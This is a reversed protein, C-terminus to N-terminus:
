AMATEHRKQVIRLRWNLLVAATSLGSIFGIWFGAAGMRPVALDTLGLVYGVTMGIGWYSFLAIWLIMVTDKYGRLCATSVVQIADSIQYVACLLMLQVALALVQTDDTYMQAIPGRAVLTLVATALAVAVGLWIALRAVMRATEPQERGLYYGIRITAAVGISLPLMFIISSFNAAVQHGAVVISGLPAIMVAVFAFLTVEFFVALAVPLGLGWIRKQVTWDIAKFQSFLQYDRFRKGWKLYVIMCLSMGWFVLATAVGCGAGGMAPMGFHGNIFIYNAPINIALGVFSIVMSTFTHSLGEPFVRLVQFLLFAPAGWLVANLYGTALHQLEPELDMRELVLNAQALLLMAILACGAALYATQHVLPRVKDTENAGHLHSVLPPVAWIIGSFLLITPLWLSAGVAVAAMDVAGVQGAMVTDIFGMMTQAVQALLVPLALQVLKKVQFGPNHM